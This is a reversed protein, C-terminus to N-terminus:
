EHGDAGDEAADEASRPADVPNGQWADAGAAAGADPTAPCYALEWTWSFANLHQGCADPDSLCIGKDGSQCWGCGLVPTCTGCSTFQKCYREPDHLGPGPGYNDDRSECSISVFAIVSVSVLFAILGHKM